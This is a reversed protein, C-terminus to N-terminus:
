QPLGSGMENESPCYLHEAKFGPQLKLKDIKPDLSERDQLGDCAFTALLIILLLSTTKFSKLNM